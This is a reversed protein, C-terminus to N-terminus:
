TFLNIRMLQNGKWSIKCWWRNSRGVLGFIMAICYVSNGHFIEYVIIQMWRTLIMRSEPYLHPTGVVREIKTYWENSANDMSYLLLWM